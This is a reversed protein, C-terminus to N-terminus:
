PTAALLSSILARIRDLVNENVRGFRHVIISQALTYIKDARIQSPRKLKGLTLENSTVVFGYRTQQQRSSMAVAVFDSTARQYDNNSLVIVPRRKQSSLDTFPVPVLVIDGQDPMM